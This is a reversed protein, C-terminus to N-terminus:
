AGKSRPQSLFSFGGPSRELTALHPAFVRFPIGHWLGAMGFPRHRICPPADVPGLVGSPSSRHRSALQFCPWYEASARSCRRINRVKKRSIRLSKLRNLRSIEQCVFGSRGRRMPDKRNRTLRVGVRGGSILMPRSRNPSIGSIDTRM